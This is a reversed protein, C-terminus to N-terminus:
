GPTSAGGDSPKTSSPNSEAGGPPAGPPPAAPVVTVAATPYLMLQGTVVVSEGAEVGKDIVVM